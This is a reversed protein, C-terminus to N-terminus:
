PGCCGTSAINPLSRLNRGTPYRRSYVRWSNNRGACGGNHHGYVTPNQLTSALHEYLSRAINEDGNAMNCGHLYVSVNKALPATPVDAVTRGGDGRDVSSFSNQYIGASGFTTGPVGLSFGHSFIHITDVPRRLCRHAAEIAASIDAGTDYPTAGVRRRCNAVNPSAVAGIRRAQRLAGCRFHNRHVSNSHNQFLCLRSRVRTRSNEQEIAEIDVELAVEQLPSRAPVGCRENPRPAKRSPGAPPIWITAFCRKQGQRAPRQPLKSCTFAPNFDIIGQPFHTREFANGPKKWFKRNRPHNNIAQARKLREANSTTKYAKEATKLLGGKGYQIRYYRGPIPSTAAGTELESDGTQAVQGNAVLRKRAELLARKTDPGFIGDVPLRERRQFARLASRTVPGLKGDVALRLGLIQNLIQQVWRGDVPGHRYTEGEWGLDLAEFADPEPSRAFAEREYAYRHRM